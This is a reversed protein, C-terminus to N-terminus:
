LYLWMVGISLLFLANVSSDSISISRPNGLSTVVEVVEVGVVSGVVVLSSVDCVLAVSAEVAVVEVAVVEVAVVEVAVVELVEVSMVAVENVIDELENDVSTALMTGGDASFLGYMNLVLASDPVTNMATPDIAPAM